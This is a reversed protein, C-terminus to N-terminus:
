AAAQVPQATAICRAAPGFGDAEGLIQAALARCCGCTSGCGTEAGLQDVSAVGRERAERIARDTIGHCICVYM